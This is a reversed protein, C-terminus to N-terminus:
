AVLAIGILAAVVLVGIVGLVVWTPRRGPIGGQARAPQDGAPRQQEAAASGGIAEPPTRAGGAEEDAGLPAAAPDPAAVKDGTEGADIRSRAQDWNRETRREANM